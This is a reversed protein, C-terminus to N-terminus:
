AETFTWYLDTFTLLAYFIGWGGYEGEAHFSAKGPDGPEPEQEGKGGVRLETNNRQAGEAGTAPKSGIADVAPCVRKQGGGIRLAAQCVAIVMEIEDASIPAIEDPDQIGL